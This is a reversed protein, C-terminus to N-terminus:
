VAATAGISASSAKTPRGPRRVPMVGLTEAIKPLDARSVSWRGNECRAPLIGDLVAAHMARHKVRDLASVEFGLRDAADRLEQRLQPLPIRDTDSKM